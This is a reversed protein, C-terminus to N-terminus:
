RSLKVPNTSGSQEKRKEALITGEPARRQLYNYVGQAIALALKEQYQESNLKEEEKLNSIFATEVLISPIDPSKLVAFAAQEVSKKHVPGIAKLQGLVDAGLEMSREMTNGQTLNLLTQALGDDLGKLSVDGHLAASQTESKALWAAAESSAGDLSLAYVSSGHAAERNIADAHISVFIDANAQRAIDMRERLDIYVDSKRVLVPTVGAVGILQNHLRIAVALVVNKEHTARRGIAGPDRGGHGADIAIVVNRPPEYAKSRIESPLPNDAPVGLDVVLRQGDQRPVLRSSPTIAQRLDLVVRLYDDGHQAYRIAKVVGSDFTQSPLETGLTAKPLDIVLRDPQTLIFMEARADKSDLDFHLIQNGQEVMNFGNLRPAASATSSLGCLLAFVVCLMQVINILQLRAGVDFRITGANRM